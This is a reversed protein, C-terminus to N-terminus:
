RSWPLWGKVTDIIRQLWNRHRCIFDRRSANEAGTMCGGVVVYVGGSIKEVLVLDISGSLSSRCWWWEGVQPNM